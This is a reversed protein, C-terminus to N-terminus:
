VYGSAPLLHLTSAFLLIFILGIWFPPVSLGFLCVGNAVYDMLGGRRVASAIGTPIGLLITILVGLAALELTIPLRRMITDKM